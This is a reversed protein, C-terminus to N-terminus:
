RGGGDASVVVPLEQTVVVDPSPERQEPPAGLSPDRALLRRVLVALAATTPDPGSASSALPPGFAAPPISCPHFTPNILECPCGHGTCKRGAEPLVPPAPAAAPAAPLDWLGSLVRQLLPLPTPTVGHESRRYPSFALHEPHDLYPRPLRRRRPPRYPV